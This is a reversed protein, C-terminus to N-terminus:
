KGVPDSRDMLILGFTALLAFLAPVLFVHPLGLRAVGIGGLAGMWVLASVTSM